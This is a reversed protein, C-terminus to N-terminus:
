SLDRTGVHAKFGIHEQTVVYGLASRWEEVNLALRKRIKDVAAVLASDRM